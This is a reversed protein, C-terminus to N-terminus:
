ATSTLTVIVHAASANQAVRCLLEGRQNSGKGKGTKKKKRWRPKRGAAAM